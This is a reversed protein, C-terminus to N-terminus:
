ADSRELTSQCISCLSLSSLRLAKAMGVGPHEAIAQPGLRAMGELGGFRAILAYSLQTVPCGTLGTGLLIALLDSDTLAGMGQDVARERPGPLVSTAVEDLNLDFPVHVELGDHKTEILTQM